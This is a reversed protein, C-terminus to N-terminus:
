NNNLNRFMYLISDLLFFRNFNIVYFLNKKGELISILYLFFVVFSEFTIMLMLFIFVVKVIELIYPIELAINIKFKDWVIYKIINFQFM